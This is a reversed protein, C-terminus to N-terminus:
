MLLSGNAKVSFSFWRSAIKMKELVGLNVSITASVSFLIKEFNDLVVSCCIHRCLVLVLVSGIAEM